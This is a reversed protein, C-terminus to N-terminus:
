KTSTRNAMEGGYFPSQNTAFMKGINEPREVNKNAKM